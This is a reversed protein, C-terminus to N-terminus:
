RLWRGLLKFVTWVIAFLGLALLGAGVITLLSLMVENM